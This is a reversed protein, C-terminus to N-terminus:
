SQKGSQAPDGSNLRMMAHSTARQLLIRTYGGDETFLSRLPISGHTPQNRCM